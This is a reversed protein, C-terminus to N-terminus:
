RTEGELAARLRHRAHMLRTKVTGTPVDLAVAAEAVSMEEFYVLAVAARQPPPLARIAARLKDRDLAEPEPDPAAAAAAAAESALAAELARDHQLGGIRRACQRSVIRYAWPAFASEDKLGALGRAIEVWAAQAADAAQDANGTLRWAHAVLRARWRRALAEFAARSGARVSVVLYADLARGIRRDKSADVGTM